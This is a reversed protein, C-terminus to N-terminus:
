ESEVEIFEGWGRRLSIEKLKDRLTSPMCKERKTKNAILFKKQFTHGIKPKAVEDFHLKKASRLGRKFCNSVNGMVQGGSLVSAVDKYVPQTVM